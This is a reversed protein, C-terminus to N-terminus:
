RLRARRGFWLCRFCRSPRRCSAVFHSPSLCNFCRGRLDEPSWRRPAPPPRGSRRRAVVQWGGESPLSRASGQSHVLQDAESSGVAGALPARCPRPPVSSPPTPAPYGDMALAADKYSRLAAWSGGSSSSIPSTNSWRQFKSRGAQSTSVAQLKLGPALLTHNTSTTATNPAIGRISPRQAGVMKRIASPTIGLLRAADSLYM